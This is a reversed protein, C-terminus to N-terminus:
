SEFVSVAAELVNPRFAFYPLGLSYAALFTAAEFQCERETDVSWLRTFGRVVTGTVAGSGLAFPMSEKEPGKKDKTADPVKDKNLNVLMSGSSKLVDFFNDGFGITIISTLVFSTYPIISDLGLGIGVGDM